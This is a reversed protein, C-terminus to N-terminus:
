QWRIVIGIGTSPAIGFVPLRTASGTSTLEPIVPRLVAAEAEFPPVIRNQNNEDVYSKQAQAV